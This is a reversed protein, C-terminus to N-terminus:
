AALAEPAGIVAIVEVSKDEPVEFFSMVPTDPLVSRVLKRMAVRIAPQVVLAFPKAEAMLPQAARQMADVIRRGLDPEI